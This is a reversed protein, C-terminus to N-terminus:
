KTQYNFGLNDDRTMAGWSGFEVAGVFSATSASTAGKAPIKFVLGFRSYKTRPDSNANPNYWVPAEQIYTPSMSTYKGLGFVVYCADTAATATAFKRAAVDPALQLVFDGEKLTAFPPQYTTTNLSAYPLLTADWSAGTPLGTADAKEVLQAVTTIGGNNLSTVQNGDLELATLTPHIQVYSLKTGDTLKVLNDLQNPYRTPGPMAAYTQVLKEVEIINTVGSATHATFLINGLLPVLIGALAALIALVVVLELLTLGKRGEAIRHSRRLTHSLM